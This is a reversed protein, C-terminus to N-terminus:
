GLFRHPMDVKPEAQQSTYLTSDESVDEYEVEFGVDDVFRTFKAEFKMKAVGTPGSQNKAVIVEAETVDAERELSGKQHYSDRHPMLVHTADEELASSEKLDSLNPKNGVRKTSERNLQTLFYPVLDFEQGIAKADSTVEGIEFRINNSDKYKIKGVHDLFWAEIDPNKRFVRKSKLKIKQWGLGKEDHFIVNKRILAVAGNFANHDKILGRNLESLNEGTMTSVLRLTLMRADMDVSTILVRKGDRIMNAVLSQMLATKGVSPRAGIIVLDGPRTIVQLGDLEKLGTRLGVIHGVERAEDMMKLMDDIIIDTGKEASVSDDDIRDISRSAYAVVDGAEAEDEGIQKKISNAMMMLRRRKSKEKLDEVYADYNSVPNATMMDLMAVEDYDGSKNLQSKLFEEDLPKNGQQLTGMASFIHNHFPLYFDSSQLKFAIDEFIQPEFIIASLIAREINLNYLTSHEINASM